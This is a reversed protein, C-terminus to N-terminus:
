TRALREYLRYNKNLLRVARCSFHYEQDTAEFNRWRQWERLQITFTPWYWNM